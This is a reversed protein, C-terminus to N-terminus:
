FGGSLSEIQLRGNLNQLVLPKMMMIEDINPRGGKKSRNDYM